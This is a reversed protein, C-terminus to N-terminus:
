VDDVWGGAWACDWGEVRRRAFGGRRVLKRQLRFGDRTTKKHELAVVGSSQGEM